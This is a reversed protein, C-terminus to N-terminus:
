ASLTQLTNYYGTLEDVVAAAPRTTLEYDLNVSISAACMICNYVTETEPSFKAGAAYIASILNKIKQKM